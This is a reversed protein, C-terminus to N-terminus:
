SLGFGASAEFCKGHVPLSREIREVVDRDPGEGEVQDAFTIGDALTFNQEGPVRRILLVMLQSEAGAGSGACGDTGKGPITLFHAPRVFERTRAFREVVLVIRRRFHQPAAKRGAASKRHGATGGRLMEECAHGGDDFAIQFRDVVVTLGIIFVGHGLCESPIRIEITRRNALVSSLCSRGESAHFRFAHCRASQFVNFTGRAVFVPHRLRSLPVRTRVVM